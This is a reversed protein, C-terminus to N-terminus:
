KREIKKRNKLAFYFLFSAFVFALKCLLSEVATLFTPIAIALIMSPIFTFLFGFLFTRTLSKKLPDAEAGWKKNLIIISFIIPLYYFIGYLEGLPYHYSAYLVTCKTVAFQDLVFPYYFIFFLAPIFVLKNFHSERESFKLVAYLCLPPLLTIDLFAFYIFIQKQLGINCILFEIFQYGFLLAIIGIILKNISNKESFILLNILYIIEICAFLLSVIGDYKNM